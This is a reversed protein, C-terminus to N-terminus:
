NGQLCHPAFKCNAGPVRDSLHGYQPASLSIASDRSRTSSCSKLVAKASQQRSSSRCSCIVTLHVVQPASVVSAGLTVAPRHGNQPPPITASPDDFFTM